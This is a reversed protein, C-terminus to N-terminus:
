AWDQGSPLIRQGVSLGFAAIAGRQLELTHAATRCCSVRWPLLKPVLRVVIGDNDLYAVDLPEFLFCTHVSACHRLLMAEGLNPGNSWMLGRLRAWFGNAVRLRLTMGSQLRCILISKPM